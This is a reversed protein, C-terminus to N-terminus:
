FTTITETVKTNETLKKETSTHTVKEIDDWMKNLTLVLFGEAGAIKKLL